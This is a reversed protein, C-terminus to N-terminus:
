SSYIMKAARYDFAMSVKHRGYRDWQNGVRYLRVIKKYRDISIISFCDETKTGVTRVEDGWELSYLGTIDSVIM